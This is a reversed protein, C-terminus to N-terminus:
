HGVCIATGGQMVGRGAVCGGAPRHAQAMPAVPEFTLEELPPAYPQASAPYSAVPGAAAPQAMAGYPMAPAAGFTGQGSLLRARACQNVARAAALSLGPGNITSVVTGGSRLRLVNLAEPLAVGQEAQCALHAQRQVAEPLAIIQDAGSSAGGGVCGSLVATALMAAPWMGGQYLKM